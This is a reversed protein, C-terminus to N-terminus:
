LGDQGDPELLDLEIAGTIRVIDTPAVRVLAAVDGGGAYVESHRMVRIDILTQMPQQHGFPPVAGVPFGTLRAVTGADALKVRKRGVGFHSAVCRRDIKSTGCAIALVPRGDVLFVLSKVIQDPETGVARAAEEVTPTEVPLSLVAANLGHRQIFKEVDESNLM